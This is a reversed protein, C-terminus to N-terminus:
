SSIACTYLSDSNCTHMDCITNIQREIVHLICAHMYAYNIGVHHVSYPKVYKVNLLIWFLDLRTVILPTDNWCTSTIDVVYSSM